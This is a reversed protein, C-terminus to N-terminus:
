EYGTYYKESIEAEWDRFDFEWEPFDMDWDPFGMDWDPFGMDWDLNMEWDSIEEKRKM